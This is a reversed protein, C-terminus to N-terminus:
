RACEMTVVRSGVHDDTPPLEIREGPQLGATHGEAELVAPPLDELLVVNREETLKGSPSVLQRLRHVEIGGKGHTVELPVSSHIWGDVERVDPVPEPFGPALPTRDDLLAAAFRGNPELSGSVWGLVQARGAPGGLLHLFQMPAIVLGFTGLDGLERADVAVVDIGLGREAARAELAGLLRPDEDVAMVAHGRAALHLAVRGSGAGLELVRGGSETALREWIPLDAVYAGCEADHWAVVDGIGLAPDSM